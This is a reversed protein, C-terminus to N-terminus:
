EKRYGYNSPVWLKGWFNMEKPLWTKEIKNKLEDSDFEFIQNLIGFDKKIYFDEYDINCISREDIAYHTDKQMLENLMKDLYMCRNIDNIEIKNYFLYPDIIRFEIDKFTNYKLFSRDNKDIKLTEGINKLEIFRRKKDNVPTLNKFLSEIQITKLYKKNFLLNIIQFDHEELFSTPIKFTCHAPLIKVDTLNKIEETNAYKFDNYYLFKLFGLDSSSKNSSGVLNITRQNIFNCLFDGKTGGIYNLIYRTMM